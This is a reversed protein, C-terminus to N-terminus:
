NNGICSRYKVTPSPEASETSKNEATIKRAWLCHCLQGHAMYYHNYSFQM